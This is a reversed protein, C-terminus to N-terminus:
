AVIAGGGAFHFHGRTLFRAAEPGKLLSQGHGSSALTVVCFPGLKNQPGTEKKPHFPDTGAPGM